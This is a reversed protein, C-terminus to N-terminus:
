PLQTSRNAGPESTSLAPIEDSEDVAYMDPVDMAVGYTAPTAASYRCDCGV